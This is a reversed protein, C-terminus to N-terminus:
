GQLKFMLTLHKTTFSSVIGGNIAALHLGMTLSLVM